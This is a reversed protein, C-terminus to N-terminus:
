SALLPVAPLNAPKRRLTAPPHFWAVLFITKLEAKGIIHEARAKSTWGLAEEAWCLRSTLWGSTLPNLGFRPLSGIPSGAM